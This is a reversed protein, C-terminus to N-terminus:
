QSGCCICDSDQKTIKLAIIDRMQIIGSEEYGTKIVM